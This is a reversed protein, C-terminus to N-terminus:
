GTEVPSVDYNYCTLDKPPVVQFANVLVQFKDGKSPFLLNSM